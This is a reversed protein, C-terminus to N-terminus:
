VRTGSRAHHLLRYLPKTSDIAHHIVRADKAVAEEVFHTGFFEVRYELNVQIAGEVDAPSRCIVELLLARTAIDMHCGRGPQDTIQALGIIIRGLQPDHCQGLGNGEVHFFEVYTGVAYRGKGETAHDAGNWGIRRLLLGADLFDLLHRGGLDGGNTHIQGAILRAM